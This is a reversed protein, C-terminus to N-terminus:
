DCETERNDQQLFFLSLLEKAITKEDEYSLFKEEGIQFGRHVEEDM